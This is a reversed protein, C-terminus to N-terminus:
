HQHDDDYALSVQGESWVEFDSIVVQHGAAVIAHAIVMLHEDDETTILHHTRCRAPDSMAEGWGYFCATLGTGTVDVIVNATDGVMMTLPMLPADTHIVKM